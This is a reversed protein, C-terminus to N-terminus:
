NLLQAGFLVLLLSGLMLLQVGVTAAAVLRHRDGVPLRSAVSEAATRFIHGGDLMFTPVCNFFALNINVWASWFLANALLYTGGGLAALPGEVVYFNTWPSVFGAFNFPLLGALGALPLVLAFYTRQIFSLDTLGSCEGEGGLVRLYCGAPYTEVGFDSVTLGSVGSYISVGLFGDDDDPSEGLEVSYTRPEGGVYATVEVTQNPSTGALARDLDAATVVREGAVRTLVVDGVPAGSENLPNDARVVAYAGMPATTETGNATRLTAVPRDALAALFDARTSVRSGNVHTVTTNRRLRTPSGKVVGTVLVAREVAVTEGGGLEVAVREGSTNALVRDLDANSEVPTGNVGAIVDGSGIGAGAAPSGPLSGAVTAGSIVGLSGVVPGFLLALFVVSVAFNNTVGAAFMRAQAGRSAREQSEEDPEVFAGAPLLTLFLLGLSEIRIDEVRCLIGHGGEHVILGVALGLLIEPAVEAPLLPNVGPIVLASRPQTLVSPQPPNRVIAAASFVFFAVSLVMVVLAAGLGFSGWARWLRKPAALRELLVRGRTTHVTVLPGHPRVADPLYGRAKLGAAVVWFLGVGVLVWTLTSM